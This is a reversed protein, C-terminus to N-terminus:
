LIKATNNSLSEQLSTQLNSHACVCVCVCVCLGPGNTYSRKPIAIAIARYTWSWVCLRPGYNVLSRIPGYIWLIHDYGTRYPGETKPLIGLIGLGTIM